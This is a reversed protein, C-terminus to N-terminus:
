LSTILDDPLRFLGEDLRRQELYHAIFGVSRAYVFIANCFDTKLLAEIQAPTYKEDQSLIDLLLAAITGDVNLILQSKKRTTIAAVAKAFTIYPGGRDFKDLLMAVRPDPNDLRYKKHGIGAIYQKNVAHREVYAAPAEDSDVAALWGDAAQSLAGGFRPGITLIGSALAATVDKGARATIMTNVAGSVQPGHDVLLRVSLDFFGALRKSKPEHGLFMSLAITSLDHEDVFKTLPEGLITVEGGKDSSVRSAFLAPTRTRMEGLDQAARSSSTIPRKPLKTLKTEFAGYSDAVDAGAAKLAKKKASATESKDQAMSKAHGFQPPIAFKEAVTGAIHALFPKRQKAKRLLDAIDYEDTGGLEGFFVIAKTLPDDLAAQVLEVPKVLPYREGGVAAAFSVGSGSAAVATILENVMGGSTSIVAVPGPQTLGGEYIQEPLTGGIAGLKCVGGIALGVSAPGLIFAGNKEAVQRLRLAHREPVSEAFIMGGVTHPMILMAEEAAAVARRGSQAVAFLSTSELTAGDVDRLQAFGPMLIERSGWYYRLYRQNVGVVAVVGPKPKGALYDFDLMSQIIGPHNGLVIIGLNKASRMGAIDIRNSKM